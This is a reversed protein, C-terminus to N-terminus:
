QGTLTRADCAELLAVANGKGLSRLVHLAIAACTHSDEVLLARPRTM